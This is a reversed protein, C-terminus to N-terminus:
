SPPNFVFPLNVIVTGESIPEFKLRRIINVLERIFDPNGISAEVIDVKSIAGSAEITVELTVKGAFGPDSRLYKNYTYMIRGQQSNIVGMVSEATRQGRATQSGGVTSPRQLNVQGQKQMAVKEMGSVNSIIDDVGGALGIDMLDEIGDGTGSGNGSGVGSGAGRGVGRGASLNQSSLLQDLQQVLGQDILFDAAGSGGSSQGSGGILALLGQSTVPREQDEGGGGGGARRERRPQGNEEENEQAGPGSSTGISVPEEIPRGVIFKAFRQPVKTIDPPEVPPLIYNKLYLGLIVELGILLLLLTKFLMERPLARLTARSWSYTPLDKSKPKSEQFRFYVQVDGISVYGSKGQSLQLLFSHGKKALLNHLMLDRLSLRSDRFLIEGSMNDNLFLTARGGHCAILTQRRPQGDGFVVINNSMAKGISLKEGARMERVTVRDSQVIKVFLVSRASM